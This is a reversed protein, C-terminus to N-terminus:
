HRGPKEDRRRNPARAPVRDGAQKAQRAALIEAAAALEARLKRYNALRGPDLQGAALAAQVACGPEREHSCDRFRCGESLAEIDAFGEEIQEDGAPKLERMGPTDVLCAGGPLPLLSRHTTTHRGRGDRDRVAGTRQVEGGLLTNSLTSKGAGSSGVLAVSAGAPLWPSLQAVSAPDKANVAVCAVGEARLGALAALAADLDGGKDHKSLVIVPAAGCNRVLLVYRELRRPNFDADLGAVVFVTDVNAAIPQLRLHEGAAGRKLLSRRPLLAVIALPEARGEVLVWDGVAARQEPPFRPARWAAPAEARHLSGPGDALRYGSRHQEAVRMPRARPHAALLAAWAAAEAATQSWGLAALAVARAQPDSV